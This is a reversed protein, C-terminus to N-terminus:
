FTPCVNRDAEPTQCLDPHISDNEDEDDDEFESLIVSTWDVRDHSTLHKGMKVCKNGFACTVSRANLM